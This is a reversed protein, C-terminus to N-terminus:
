YIYKKLKIFYDDVVNRIEILKFFCNNAFCSLDEARYFVTTILREKKDIYMNISATESHIKNLEELLRFKYIPRIKAIFVRFLVCEQAFHVSVIINKLNKGELFIHISLIGEADEFEYSIGNVELIKVFESRLKEM